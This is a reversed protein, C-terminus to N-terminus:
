FTVSATLTAASAWYIARRYDRAILYGICAFVSVIISVIALIKGYNM